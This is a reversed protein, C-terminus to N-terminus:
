SKFNVADADRNSRIYDDADADFNAISLMLMVTARVAACILIGLASLQLWKTCLKSRCVACQMCQVYQVFQVYQVCQVCQLCQVTCLACQLVSSRVAYKQQM